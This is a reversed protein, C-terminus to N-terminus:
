WCPKLCADGLDLSRLGEPTGATFPAPPAPRRRSPACALRKVGERTHLQRSAHLADHVSRWAPDSGSPPVRTQDVAAHRCIRPERIWADSNPDRERPSIAPNRSAPSTPSRVGIGNTKTLFRVRFRAPALKRPSIGLLAGAHRGRGPWPVSTAFSRVGPPLLAEFRAHRSSVPSGSPFPFPPDQPCV